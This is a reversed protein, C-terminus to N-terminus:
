LRLAKEGRAMGLVGSRVVELIAAEGLAHLFADLKRSGGTLAVTYM